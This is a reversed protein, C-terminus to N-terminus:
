DWVPGRPKPRLSRILSKLCCKPGSAQVMIKKIVPINLSVKRCSFNYKDGSFKMFEVDSSIPFSDTELNSRLGEKLYGLFSGAQEGSSRQTASFILRNIARTVAVYLLRKTEASNKRRMIYDYLLAAPAAYSKEFYKKGSPIKTLIGYKSDFILYRARIGDEM